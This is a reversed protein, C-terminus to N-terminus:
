PRPAPSPRLRPLPTPRATPTPTATRTATATATATPTPTPTVSSQACYRGGTNFYTLGSASGGWIIMQNGTWVATHFARGDPVNATSTATWSDTTPDYRGGTNVYSSDDYGGWIIM